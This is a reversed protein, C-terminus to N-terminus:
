EVVEQGQAESIPTDVIAAVMLDYSIQQLFAKQIDDQENSAATFEYTKKLDPYKNILLTINELNITMTPNVEIEQKLINAFDPAEITFTYTGDENESIVQYENAFDEFLRAIDSESNLGLKEIVETVTPFEVFGFYTLSGIIGTVLILFLLVILAFKLFFRRIKKGTSWHARKEKKAEKKQAKKAKKGAKKDEKKQEKENLIQSAEGQIQARSLNESIGSANKEQESIKEADEANCNPCLGTTEDLKAGCKGCFKAM